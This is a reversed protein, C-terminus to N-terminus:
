RSSTPSRRPCWPWRTTAPRPSRTPCAPSCAPATTDCRSTKGHLLEPARTVTAASRWASRRTASASASSRCSAPTSASSTSASAPATRAHGPRALAPHRRRRRRRGRRRRDRRQAAGRVRRRAPGPVAGPQLRVLRLQRDRPHAHTVQEPLRPAPNNQDTDYPLEHRRRGADDARDGAADGGTEAPDSPEVQVDDFPLLPEAWPFVVYWLLACRPPSWCCRAPRAQGLLGFPLKRWIWAYM